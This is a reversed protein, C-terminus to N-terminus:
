LVVPVFGIWTTRFPRALLRERNLYVFYGAILPIVLTHGWDAQQNIAFRVQRFFFDWFIGVCLLTLVAAGLLPIRWDPSTRAIPNPGTGGSM